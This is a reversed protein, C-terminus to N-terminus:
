KGVSEEAGNIWRVMDDLVEPSITEEIDYYESPAGTIAHQLLHNLGPYSKILNQPNPPLNERISSLNSSEIVQADATGNVAMVPVRTARIAPLPDYDIFYTTWPDNMGQARARIMQKTMRTDIGQLELMRNSQETLLTDGKIGPAALAVIFDAVGRSGLIFAIAGGESHGIVGIKSFREDSRMAHLVAAADEAFDETTCGAFIGSSAATGRDDYRFSAIGHRALHDAIVAFPRHELLTEDRDQPGSGSVLVVLPVGAGEKMEMPCTLTGALTVSDSVQIKREETSYPFPERPTQPRRITSEDSMPSLDLPFTYGAQAFIGVIREGEKRGSYKAVIQPITISISDGANYLLDAGIGKAGQAPVDMTCTQTGSEDTHIHFIISLKQMGLSLEGSWDGSVGQASLGLTCCISTMLAILYKRM